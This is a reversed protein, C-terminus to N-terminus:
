FRYALKAYWRGGFYGIPSGTQYKTLYGWQNEYHSTVWDWVAAPYKDPYKNFINDGGVTLTWKDNPKFSISLNTTALVGIKEKYYTRGDMVRTDLQALVEDPFENGMGEDNTNTDAWQYQPGYIAETVNISFKGVNITAGLNVRFKPSANEMNILTATSYMSGGGLSAPAEKVKIVDLKNYNAALIWDVSGWDFPTLYNTVWDVGTARTDLANNFLYVSINQRASTDLSGEDSATPDISGLYGGDVLAQGLATNYSDTEAGSVPDCPASGSVYCFSGRDIRDKITIRYFDLTSTLHTLPNFVFGLSFNTSTEPKLAGFGLSAAASGNPQLQPYAGSPSVNVASYYEEGLTPARFGTSATARVAFSDSFDYRTTLKGITKSGFDSYHEYRVATDVLWKELPYFIADAFVSYSNRSYSGTNTAPNYGPFSSAGTKYYSAADGPSIAYKDQRYEVGANFTLPSSLGVDFDRTANLDSTWQSATFTGDYFDTPTYGFENWLNQNMSNITYVDMKDKGYTTSADWTWDAVFGTLGATLTYDDEDAYESPNFGYPYRYQETGSADTYGMLQDPARYNEESSATKKGYGGFAYFSVSDSLVAGSNFYLAKRHVEPPNLWNNLYPFKPNFVAQLNAASLAFDQMGLGNARCDAPNQICAGMASPVFRYVSQRNEAEVSLNFFNQTDGFGLNAGWKFDRGGGDQYGSYGATVEGGDPNKKLIINIVGAIADSGYLAAAGDTLVEVHDVAAEPIFSLDPAAAGTGASVNATNHLRKGNILILTHNPSLGRLAATLTQSAMDSGVQNANYSPVQNAIANQLDPAATSALKELSVLQIPAPSDTVAMNSKRTGTSIVTIADLTKADDAPADAALVPAVQGMLLVAAALRGAQPRAGLARSISYALRDSNIRKGM